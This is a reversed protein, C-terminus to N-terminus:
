FRTEFEYLSISRSKCFSLYLLGALMRVSLVTNKEQEKGTSQGLATGCKGRGPLNHRINYNRAVNTRYKAM